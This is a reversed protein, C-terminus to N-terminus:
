KKHFDIFSNLAQKMVSITSKSDMTSAAVMEHNQHDKRHTEKSYIIIGPFTERKLLEKVLEESTAFELSM